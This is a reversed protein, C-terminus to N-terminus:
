LGRGQSGQQTGLQNEMDQKMLPLWNGIFLNRDTASMGDQRALLSAVALQRYRPARADDFYDLCLFMFFYNYIYQLNDPIQWTESPVRFINATQQYNITVQYTGEPVPMLRFTFSVGSENSAQVSIYAPRDQANEESLAGFKVEIEQIKGSVAIAGAQAQTFNGLVTAVTFSTATVSVLTFTGNLAVTTCGTIVVREGVGGNRLAGFNNLCQYTAVGALITVSTIVGAPQLSATEIYGFLPLAANYDQIGQTTLFTTTARNWEWKFPPGVITQLTMNAASLAPENNTGINSQAWNLFPAVFDISNQLTFSGAM